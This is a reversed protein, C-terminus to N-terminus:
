RLRRHRSRRRCQRRQHRPRGTRAMSRNSRLRHPRTRARGSINNHLSATRPSVLITLRISSSPLRLRARLPRPLPRIIQSCAWPPTRTQHRRRRPLNTTIRRSRRPSRRHRPCTRSSPSLHPRPSRRRPRRQAPNLPTTSRRPRLSHHHGSSPHRPVARGWTFHGSRPSSGPPRSRHPRRSPRSTASRPRPGRALSRFRSGASRRPKPHSPRVSSM